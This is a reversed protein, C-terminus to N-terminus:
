RRTRNKDPLLRRLNRTIKLAYEPKAMDGGSIFRAIFRLQGEVDYKPYDPHKKALCALEAPFEGRPFKRAVYSGSPYLNAIDAPAATLFQDRMEGPLGRLLLFVERARTM